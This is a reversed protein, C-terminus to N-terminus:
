LGSDIEEVVNTGSYTAWDRCTQAMVSPIQTEKIQDPREMINVYLGASVHWAIHCHFPWVGPNDANFQVVIYSPTAASGAPLIQVDRRQPNNPNTITGDWDGTGQALIQFNHGHLHMPHLAVFHNRVVLRISTATKFNYVNWEPDDPYSTNGLNALLLLPNNYNARFSSNNMYFLNFGTANPGFTIDIQQTAAPSPVSGFPFYPTTQTLPDNECNSTYVTATSNPRANTDAQPYYIAALANPQNTLSCVMDSRMFVADTPKGNATVLVDTRQGIGLTVKNTVYPKVPVFDNAIVTMNHNDITFVQTGEAGSNILRLRHVKGTQFKFKSLGANPTCPVGAPAKTCDFDRHFNSHNPFPDHM